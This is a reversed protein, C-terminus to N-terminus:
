PPALDVCELAPQARLHGFELARSFATAQYLPCFDLASPIRAGKPPHFGSPDPLSGASRALLNFSERKADIPYEVKFICNRNFSRPGRPAREEARLDEPTM